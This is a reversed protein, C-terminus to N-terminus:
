EPPKFAVGAYMTVGTSPSRRDGVVAANQLGVDRMLNLFAECPVPYPVFSLSKRLDYEVLVFRGGPRLHRSLHKLTAQPQPTFHLANAMLIGNLPPLDLTRTFDENITHLTASLSWSQRLQALARADRDVAYIEATSPLLDCLARTFNGTGAGVDAWIGSAGAVGQRILNVMEAQNM